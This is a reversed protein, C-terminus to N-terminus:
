KKIIQFSKTNLNNPKIFYIGAKLNTLDIAQNSVSQSSILRGTVDYIWVENILQNNNKIFVRDSSPNPYLTIEGIPTVNDVSLASFEIVSLAAVAGSGNQNPDDSIMYVEGISFILNNDSIAGSNVSTVEQGSLVLAFLLGLTTFFSKKM